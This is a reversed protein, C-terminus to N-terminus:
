LIEFEGIQRHGKLKNNVDVKENPCYIWYVPKRAQIAAKVVEGTGGKKQNNVGNWLAILIDSHNVLYNGLNEYASQDEDSPTLVIVKVAIKLLTQFNERGSDSAFNELYDDEEKPLLVRLTIEPFEQSIRAVLQDSGEALASYLYVDKSAQCELIGRLVQRISHHLASADPIFRHGTVGIQLHNSRKREM